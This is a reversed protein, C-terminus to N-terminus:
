GHRWNPEQGKKTARKRREIGSVMTGHGHADDPSTQQTLIAEAHGINAGLLPHSTTTGTDLTCLRPGDQPPRPVPPFQRASTDRIALPDFAPVPPLELEAIVPLQVLLKLAIGSCTVRLLCLQDGEFADRIRDEGDGTSLLLIRVEEVASRTKQRSGQHWLEVDVIYRAQPDITAGNFGIREALAFGIRDEPRWGKMGKVDIIALADWVTSKAREGTNGKIVPGNAMTQVGQRLETLHVDDHFAIV